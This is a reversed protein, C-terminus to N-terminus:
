ARHTELLLDVAAIIATENPANAVTFARIGRLEVPNDSGVLSVLAARYRDRQAEAERMPHKPCVRVHATLLAHQTDPTGPPYATGCFACVTQQTARHWCNTILQALEMGHGKDIHCSLGAAEVAWEPIPIPLSPTM